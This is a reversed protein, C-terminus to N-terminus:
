VVEWADVTKICRDCGFIEDDKAKYITDAEKGCIPCRPFKEARGDEYGTREANRICPHDPLNYMETGGSKQM